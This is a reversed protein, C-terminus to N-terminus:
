RRTITVKFRRSLLGGILAFGLQPCGLVIVAISIMAPFLVFPQQQGITGRLPELIPILYPILVEERFCSALTVYIALAMAGFVEFGLLFARTEPRRHGVLLGVALVSAMPLAGLALFESARSGFMARIAAFNLAAIAIAVMIWAIRFRPAKV